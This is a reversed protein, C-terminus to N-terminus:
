NRWTCFYYSPPRPAPPPTWFDNVLFNHIHYLSYVQLAQIQSAQKRIIELLEDKGLDSLSVNDVMKIRFQTDECIDAFFQIIIAGKIAKKSTFLYPSVTHKGLCSLKGILLFNCKTKLYLCPLSSLKWFLTFKLKHCISLEKRSLCLINIKFYDDNFGV